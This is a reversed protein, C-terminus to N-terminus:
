WGPPPCRAAASWASGVLCFRIWLVSPLALPPMRWHPVTRRLLAEGPVKCAAPQWTGASQVAGMLRQM